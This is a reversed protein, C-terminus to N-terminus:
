TFDNCNLVGASYILVFMYILVICLAHITKQDNMDDRTKAHLVHRPHPFTNHKRSPVTSFVKSKVLECVVINRDKESSAIHHAGSISAM